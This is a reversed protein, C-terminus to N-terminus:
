AKTGEEELTEGGVIALFGLEFEGDVGSRADGSGDNLGVVSHERGVGGDLVRVACEKDVIFSHVVNATAIKIDWSGTEFVQVTQNRLNNRANSARQSEVTGQIDIQILEL